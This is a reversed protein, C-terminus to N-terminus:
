IIIWYKIYVLDLVFITVIKNVFEESYNCIINVIYQCNSEYIYFCFIKIMIIKGERGQNM